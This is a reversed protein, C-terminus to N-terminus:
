TPSAARRVDAWARLPGPPWSCGIQSTWARCQIGVASWTGPTSRETCLGSVVLDLNVLLGPFLYSVPLPATM